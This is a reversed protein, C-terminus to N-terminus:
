EPSKREAPTIGHLALFAAANEFHAASIWTASHVNEPNVHLSVLARGLEKNVQDYARFREESRGSRVEILADPPPNWFLYRTLGNENQECYIVHLGINKCFDVAAQRLDRSM